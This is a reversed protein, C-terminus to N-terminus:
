GFGRLQPWVKSWPQRVGRCLYIDPHDETEENRVGHVIPTHGAVEVSDFFPELDDRGAGLVIMNPPPNPGPGRLWYSNVNSIAPPLGHRPGYLSMAGAEGYNSCFIGTRAREDEPLAHYIRAVEAVLEQWGVEENLDNNHETAFRFLPSGIPAIPLAVVAASTGILLALTVVTFAVNRLRLQRADAWAVFQVAGAALLMPYVPGMYYGRGRAIVFLVFPVIAMWALIRFSRFRPSRLLSYIGAIWLPATLPNACVLFQDVLFGDTRGIRVDRARIHDLFDATIFDHQIQWVLHPTVILLSVAVGAWLWGSRIHQRLDTLLFGAVIGAVYFVITYKTMVGIGIVIGIPLWWRPDSTAALRVVLYAILVWWLFDFAVYQYLASAALSLPAIAVAVAAIWQARRGGGFHRTMLAALVLVISQAVSPLFRMAAPTADVFLLAIRGMFPTVPPYTVYGWALHKADDITALEDRHFGYGDNTILHFVVKLAAFALIPTLASRPQPTRLRVTESLLKM